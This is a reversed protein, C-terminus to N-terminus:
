RVEITTIGWAEVASEGEDPCQFLGVRTYDNRNENLKLILGRVLGRNWNVRGVAVFTLDLPLTELADDVLSVLEDACDPWIIFSKFWTEPTGVAGHEVGIRVKKVTRWWLGTKTPGEIKITGEAMKRGFGGMVSCSIIRFRDVIEESYHIVVPGEVGAWSWSPAQQQNRRRPLRHTPTTTNWQLLSPLKEYYWLGAIYTIGTIRQLEQAIGSIAALRDEQKSLQLKSYQAVLSAWGKFLEERSRPFKRFGSPSVYLFLSYESTSEKSGSHMDTLSLGTQGSYGNCCSCTWRTTRWGYELVRRSLLREQLAWGRTALNERIPPSALTYDDLYVTGQLGGSWSLPIRFQSYDLRPQLFGDYCSKATSACITMEANKYIHPMQLIQKELDDESNQIICLSDIWIYRYGLKRATNFSDQFTAPLSDTSLSWNGFSDLRHTECCLRQPGGWCYSLCVYGPIFIRQTNRVTLHQANSDEGLDM